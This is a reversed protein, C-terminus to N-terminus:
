PSREPAHHNPTPCSWNRCTQCPVCPPPSQQTEQSLDEQPAHNHETVPLSVSSELATDSQRTTEGLIKRDLLSYKFNDWASLTMPNVAMNEVHYGESVLRQSAKWYALRCVSKEGIFRLTAPRFNYEEPTALIKTWILDFFKAQSPYKEQSSPLAAVRGEDKNVYKALAAPNRAVEIHARPFMKKVASFRVQPTQLHLQFHETGEKGREKQGDVKWGKQRAYEIDEEDDPTPNNITLSWHSSRVTPDSM